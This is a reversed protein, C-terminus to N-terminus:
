VFSNAANGWEKKIQEKKAISYENKGLNRRKGIHGGGSISAM